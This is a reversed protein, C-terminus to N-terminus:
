KKKSNVTKAAIKGSNQVPLRRRCDDEEVLNVRQRGLALLAALGATDALSHKRLQEGLHVADLLEGVDRYDGGRVPGTRPVRAESACTCWFQSQGYSVNCRSRLGVCWGGDIGAMDWCRSREGGM